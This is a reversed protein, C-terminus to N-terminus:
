KKGFTVFKIDKLQLKGMKKYMEKVFEPSHELPEINVSVNNGNLQIPIVTVAFDSTEIFYVRQQISPDIPVDNVQSYDCLMDYTEMDLVDVSSCKYLKYPLDQNKDLVKLYRDIETTNVDELVMDTFVGKEGGYEIMTSIESKLMDLSRQISSDEVPDGTTRM